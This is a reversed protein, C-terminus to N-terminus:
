GVGQKSEDDSNDGEALHAYPQGAAQLIHMLASDIFIENTVKSNLTMWELEKALVLFNKMGEHFVDLDVKKSTSSEVVSGEQDSKNVGSRVGTVLYLVDFGIKALLALKDSPISFGKEWRYYTVKSVGISVYVQQRTKGLREREAILYM